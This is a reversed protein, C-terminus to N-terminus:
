YKVASLSSEHKNLRAATTLQGLLIADRSRCNEKAGMFCYCDGRGNSYTVIPHPSIVTHHYEFTILNLSVTNPMDASFVNFLNCFYVKQFNKKLSLPAVTCYITSGLYIM